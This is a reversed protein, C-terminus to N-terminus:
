KFKFSLFHKRLINERLTNSAPHETKDTKDYRKGYNPINFETCSLSTDSDIKEIFCESTSELFTSNGSLVQNVSANVSNASTDNVVPSCVGRNEQCNLMKQNKATINCVNGLNETIHSLILSRLSCTSLNGTLSELKWRSDGEWLAQPLM